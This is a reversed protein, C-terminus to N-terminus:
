KMRDIFSFSGQQNSYIPTARAQISRCRGYNKRINWGAEESTPFIFRVFYMNSLIPHDYLPQEYVDIGAMM